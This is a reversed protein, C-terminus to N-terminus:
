CATTTKHNCTFFDGDVGLLRTLCIVPSLFDLSLDYIDEEKVCLPCLPGIPFGDAPAHDTQSRDEDATNIQDINSMVM